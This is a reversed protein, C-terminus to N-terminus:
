RVAPSRFNLVGGASLQVSHFTFSCIILLARSRGSLLAFSQVSFVFIMKPVRIKAQMDKEIRMRTAGEKGIVTGFLVPVNAEFKGAYSATFHVDYKDLNEVCSCM